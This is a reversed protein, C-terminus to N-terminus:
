LPLMISIGDTGGLALNPPLLRAEVMVMLSASKKFLGHVAWSFLGRGLKLLLRAVLIIIIIYVNVIVKPM